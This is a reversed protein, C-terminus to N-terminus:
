LSKTQKAATPSPAPLRVGKQHRRNQKMKHQKRWNRIKDEMKIKSCIWLKPKRMGGIKRSPNMEEKTKPNNVM